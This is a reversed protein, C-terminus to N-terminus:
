CPLNPPLYNVGSVVRTKPDHINFATSTLPPPSQYATRHTFMLEINKRQTFCHSRYSSLGNPFATPPTESM